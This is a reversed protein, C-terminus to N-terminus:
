VHQVVEHGPVFVVGVTENRTNTLPSQAISRLSEPLCAPLAGLVQLCALVAPYQARPAGDEVKIAIGIGADLVGVSHVGEAGVKAVINGAGAQMLLTDFRDTGGVLHAHRTMARVIRRPIGESTYAEHALRAYALAM